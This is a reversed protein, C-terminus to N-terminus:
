ALRQELLLRQQPDMSAVEAPSIKFASADFIDLDEM